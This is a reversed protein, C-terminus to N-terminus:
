PTNNIAQKDTNLSKKATENHLLRNEQM